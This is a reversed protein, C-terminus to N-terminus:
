STVPWISATACWRRALGIILYFAGVVVGWGLLSRTVAASSDFGDRTGAANTM